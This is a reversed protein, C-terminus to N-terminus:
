ISGFKPEFYDKYISQGEIVLNIKAM